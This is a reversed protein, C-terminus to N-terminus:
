TSSANSQRQAEVAARLCQALGVAQVVSLVPAQLEFALSDPRLSFLRSTNVVHAVQQGGEDLVSFRRGSWSGKTTLVRGGPLTVECRGAVGLLGLKLELLPEGGPSLVGYRRGFFGQREGHALDAGSAPEVIDFRARVTWRHWRIDVVPAGTDLTVPSVSGFPARDPLILIGTFLAHPQM